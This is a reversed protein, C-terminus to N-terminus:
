DRQNLKSKTRLKENATWLVPEEGADVKIWETMRELPMDGEQYRTISSDRNDSVYKITVRDATPVARERRAFDIAKFNVGWKEQWARVTVSAMAEDGLLRVAKFPM